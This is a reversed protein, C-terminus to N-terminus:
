NVTQVLAASSLSYSASGNYAATVNHTGSALATTTYKATGASITVTALAKAGDYFTVTGTITGASSSAVMATFTVSQKHTSPNPSSVLTTTTPAEVVVQDLAESTSGNYNADGAYVSTVSKLGTGLSTTSLSAMGGTLTGTGLVTAGQKFTVTEGNPPAGNTSSVVTTFVVAQGFVAVNPSSILTTTTPATVIQNVPSSSSGANNADGSYVATVTNSGAPLQTTALKATNSSLTVIGLLTAGNLFQVIGTRSTASSSVTATFTVSGAQTSPNVSSVLTTTSLSGAVVQTLTSSTSGTFNSDGSYVATISHSGIALTSTTLSASNGSVTPSGLTTSGDKFTITGSAQGGYHPTITATFTVAQSLGAPNLSSRLAVTTTAQNVAQSLSASSGSFNSDGSYVAAISHTGVALTSLTLSASNGSVTPSGLTTSGDKFTITGTAQGGSQTTLMATLTVSQDFGSPNFSSTLALTTTIPQNITQNLSASSSSFNADGSYVANITHLGVTLASTSFTATGGSLPSTGLATSGDSFTVTGTPTGSGQPTVTATFTASQGFLCPNSSSAVTATTTGAPNVFLQTPFGFAQLQSSSYEQYNGVNDQVYVYSVTWTGAEGYAPFTATGTWTGNLNTGSALSLYGLQEQDGSPSVFYM